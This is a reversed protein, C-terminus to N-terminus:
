SGQRQLSAICQGMRVVQGSQVKFPGLQHPPFVLIVTSGFSFRALEEGKCAPLDVNGQQPQKYKRRLRTEPMPYVTDIGGVLAAGIKVVVYEPGLKPKIWTIVRENKVYLGPVARLGFRNVPYLYGPVYRWRVITGDTPMHVRHYDKPSLYLIIYSGEAWTDLGGTEQLLAGLSYSTGKAHFVTASDIVGLDQVTGDVPSIAGDVDM